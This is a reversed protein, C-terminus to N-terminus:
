SSRLDPQWWRRSREPKKLDEVATLQECRASAMHCARLHNIRSMTATAEEKMLVWALWATSVCLPLLTREAAAAQMEKSSCFNRTIKKGPSRDDAFTMQIGLYPLWIYDFRISSFYISFCFWTQKWNNQSPSLPFLRKSTWDWIFFSRASSLLLSACACVVSPVFPNIISETLITKHYKLREFLDIGLKM